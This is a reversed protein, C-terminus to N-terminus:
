YKKKEKCLLLFIHASYEKISFLKCPNEQKGTFHRITMFKLM